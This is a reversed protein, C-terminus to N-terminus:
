MKTIFFIMRLVSIYSQGFSYLAELESILDVTGRTDEGLGLVSSLEDLKPRHEDNRTSGHYLIQRCVPAVPSMPKIGSHPLDGQLLSHCDVGTNKDPSDGHVSSGPLSCDHPQLSDSKISAVECVCVCVCVCVCM